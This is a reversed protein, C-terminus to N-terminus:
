ITNGLLRTLSISKGALKQDRFAPAGPGASVPLGNTHPHYSVARKTPRLGGVCPTGRHFNHYVYNRIVM